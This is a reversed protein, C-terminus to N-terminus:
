CSTATGWYNFQNNCINTVQTGTLVSYYLMIENVKGHAYDSDNNGFMGFSGSFTHASGSISNATGDFYFVCAGTSSNYSAAYNHMADATYNTTSTCLSAVRDELMEMKTTSTDFRWNFGGSAPSVYVNVSHTGGSGSTETMSALVTVNLPQTLSANTYQPPTTTTFQVCPLSGNCSLLITGFTSGVDAIDFGNGSQDYFKKVNCTTANCFTAITVGSDAGSCGTTNGLNGSSNILVDCTESDSTRTVQVAKNSGTAYAANYARLGWFAKAGSVVDGPGTYSAPAGSAGGMTTFFQARAGALAAGLLLVALVLRKM